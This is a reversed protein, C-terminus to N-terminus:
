KPTNYGVLPVRLMGRKADLIVVIGRNRHPYTFLSTQIFVGAEFRREIADLHFPEQLLKKSTTVSRAAM